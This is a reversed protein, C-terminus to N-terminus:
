PEFRDLLIIQNSIFIIDPNILNNYSVGNGNRRGIVGNCDEAAVEFGDPNISHLIHIDLQNIISKIRPDAKHYNSLLHEVL